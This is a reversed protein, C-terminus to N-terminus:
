FLWSDCIKATPNIIAQLLAIDNGSQLTHLISQWMGFGNQVPSVTTPLAMSPKVFLPM